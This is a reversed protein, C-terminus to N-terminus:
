TDRWPALNMLMNEVQVAADWSLQFGNMSHGYCHIFPIPGATDFCALVDVDFAKFPLCECKRGNRRYGVERAVLPCSECSREVELRATLEQGDKNRRLPRRGVGEGIIIINSIDGPKATEHRQDDGVLRPELDLAQRLLDDRLSPRPSAERLSHYVSLPITLIDTDGKM